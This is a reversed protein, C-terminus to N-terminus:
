LHGRSSQRCAEICFLARAGVHSVDIRTRGSRWLSSSVLVICVPIWRVNYAQDEDSRKALYTFVEQHANMLSNLADVDLNSTVQPWVHILTDLHNDHQRVEDLPKLSYELTSTGQSTQVVNSRLRAAIIGLHDLAINKAGNNETSSKVDDLSTIQSNPSSSSLLIFLTHVMFKIAVGLLVSAAPWDPWYLVTLLDAILNDFITRYEAENSNKTIKTKGSRGFIM